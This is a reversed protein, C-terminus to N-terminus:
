PSTSDKLLRVLPNLKGDDSNRYEELLQYSMECSLIATAEPNEHTAALLTPFIYSTLGPAGYFPFPLTCLQQLVSPGAGASQLTLQNEPNNVAFYGLVQFLESLIYTGSTNQSAGIEPKHSIPDRSLRTIVHSAILRWQLSIGEAGLLNQLRQLNVEAISKLLRLCRVVLIRTSQSMTTQNPTPSLGKQNQPILAVAAYLGGIAGAAETSSVTSLLHSEVSTQEVNNNNEHAGGTEQNPSKKLHCCMRFLLDYSSILLTSEHDQDVFFDTEILARSHGLVRDVLGGAVLYGSIDQVRTQLSSKEFPEEPILSCLLQMLSNAVIGSGNSNGSAEQVQVQDDLKSLTELHQLLLDLIVLIKNSSLVAEINSDNGSVSLKYVRCVSVVSKNPLNHSANQMQLGLSILSTLVDFGNLGNFANQDFPCSKSFARTIEGLCRELAAIAVSSWATKSHNNYLRDLEKLNRRFKAKNTSESSQNIDVKHNDEWEKGRLIMRQKMKRCRRKLAKQKEKAAKIENSNNNDVVSIPLDRIQSINFRQLEDRSPERGDYTSRVAELHTKGKLHSLLYVENPIVTGCLSCQKQTPYSKLTPPVEESRLISSEVARQRIQEINEVHRRASEQQKQAIKKQLEEQNALQAAHLASLREERDRAKERALEQREKERELQMKGVREERERRAQKMKQIRLQREAELARRREEAAAEKAAKEEQRRQREEQIGQLREEQEQCLAMFDHRKNQAELENIFAIEKLKSDEDHAKRVVELLHQTRNEEARKLKMEMRVRKNEILQNKASKVDKVKNLLERLRQSKEMLLKQRKHQACAQKAQYRRLTEPLSRKRSPSSLKQHLELARGPHRAVLARLQALTDVCEAWSMGDLINEYRDELGLSIDDPVAIPSTEQEDEIELVMEGDTEDTETDVDTETCELELIQRHLSAEEDSLQQSRQSDAEETKREEELIIREREAQAAMFQQIRKELLEADSKFIAAIMSTSNIENLNITNKFVEEVKDKITLSTVSEGKVKEVENCINKGEKEVICKKKQKGNGDPTLCKKKNKESPSEISLAPLSTATSPKHFRTSMDLNHTSGRRCRGRVTQWGDNEEKTKVTVTQKTLVEVSGNIDKNCQDKRLSSQESIKNELTQFRQRVIVSTGPKIKNSTSTNKDSLTTKSRIFKPTESLTSQKIKTAKMQSVTSYAPKHINLLGKNTSNCSTDSVNRAVIKNNVNDSASSQGKLKQNVKNSVKTVNQITKNVVIVSNNEKAVTNSEILKNETTVNEIGISKISKKTNQKKVKANIENKGLELDNKPGLPKVQLNNQANLKNDVCASKSLEKETSTFTILQMNKDNQIVQENKEVIVNPDTVKLTNNHLTSKVPKSVTKPDLKSKLDRPSVENTKQDTVVSSSTKASVVHKVLAKNVKISTLKDKILSQNTIKDTPSKSKESLNSNNRTVNSKNDKILKHAPETKMYNVKDDITIAKNESIIQDVPSRCMSETPSMRQLPSTSKPIMTSNWIRCPSTKRVEWALPTRRLPPPSSEYAWKVKFWEILNHFDRTYNELVLIVEKCESINEDEECTQYIGDVARQLNGFLFAWYRAQLESKKDRGTSASRVRTTPKMSRKTTNSQSIRPVSPPKKTVKETNSTGVPVNFAILNRAARGEEQILLRVDAM